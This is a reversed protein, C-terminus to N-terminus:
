NEAPKEASDIVLFEVPVKQAELRLGLQEQLVGSLSEGPEWSLTFDYYATLDTKDVIPGNGPLNTLADALQAMSMRQATVTNLNLNKGDVADFKNISAGRVTFSTRDGSTKAEKLKSGNKAVVLAHGSLEKRERQFKLKFREVLLAQLMLVLQEHTAAPDEAKGEIDFRAAGWVWDPGGSIRGIPMNYAISILHSLRAATIVCRGRPISAGIDTAQFNSDAGHCDGRVGNSSTDPKISAVEFEPSAKPGAQLRAGIASVNMLGFLILTASSRFSIVTMAQNM